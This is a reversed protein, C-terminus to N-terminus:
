NKLFNRNQIVAKSIVTKKVSEIWFTISYPNTKSM